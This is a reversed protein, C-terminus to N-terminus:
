ATKDGLCDQCLAINAGVRPRGWTGRRCPSRGGRLTPTSCSGDPCSSRSSLATHRPWCAAYEIRCSGRRCPRPSAVAYMKARKCSARMCTHVSAHERARLECTCAHMNARESASQLGRVFEGMCACVSGGMWWCVWARMHVCASQVDVACALHIPVLEVVVIILDVASLRICTQM